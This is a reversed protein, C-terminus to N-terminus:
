IFDANIIFICGIIDRYHHEAHYSSLLLDFHTIDGVNMYCTHELVFEWVCVFLYLVIHNLEAVM